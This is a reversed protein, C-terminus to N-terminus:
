GAAAIRAAMWVLYREGVPGGRDERLEAPVVFLFPGRDRLVLRDGDARTAILVADRAAAGIDFITAYDNEAVVEFAMRTLGHRELLDSLLVGEFRTSAHWPTDTMLAYTPLTELAAQDYTVTRGDAGTVSLTATAPLPSLTVPVAGQPPDALAPLTSLCTLVFLLRFLVPPVM